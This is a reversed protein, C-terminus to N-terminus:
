VVEVIFIHTTGDTDYSARQNLSAISGSNPRTPAISAQTGFSSPHNKKVADYLDKSIPKGNQFYKGGERETYTTGGVNSSRIVRGL